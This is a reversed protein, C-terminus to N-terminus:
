TPRHVYADAAALRYIKVAFLSLQVEYQVAARSAASLPPIGHMHGFMARSVVRHVHCETMIMTIVTTMGTLLPAAKVMLM